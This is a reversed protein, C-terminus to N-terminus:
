RGLDHWYDWELVLAHRVTPNRDTSFDARRRITLLWKDKWFVKEVRSPVGQVFPRWGLEALRAGYWAEVSEHDGPMVWTREWRVQTKTGRWMSRRAEAPFSKLGEDYPTSGDPVGIGELLRMGEPEAAALEEAIRPLHKRIYHRQYAFLGAGIGLLLLVAALPTLRSKKM